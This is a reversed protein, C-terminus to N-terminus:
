DGSIIIDSEVDNPNLEPDLVQKYKEDMTFEPEVICSEPLETIINLYVPTYLPDDEVPKSLETFLDFNKMLKLKLDIKKATATEIKAAFDKKDRNNTATNALDKYVAILNDLDKIDAILDKAIFSEIDSRDNFNIEEDSEDNIKEKLKKAVLASLEDNNNIPKVEEITDGDVKAIEKLAKKKILEARQLNLCIKCNKRGKEFYDLSLTRDCKNCTKTEM